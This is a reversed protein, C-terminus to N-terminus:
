RGVKININILVSQVCNRNKNEVLLQSDEEYYKRAVESSIRNM